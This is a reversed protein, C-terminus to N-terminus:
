PKVIIDGEWKVLDAMSYSWVPFVPCDGESSLLDQSPVGIDDKREADTAWWRLYAGDDDKVEADTPVWARERPKCFTWTLTDPVRPNEVNDEVVLRVLTGIYIKHSSDRVIGTMLARNKEVQVRDLGAKVFLPIGDGRRPNEVDDDDPIKAEDAFAMDGGREDAAFEVSKVLDDELLFRYTGSASQAAALQPITLSFVLISM